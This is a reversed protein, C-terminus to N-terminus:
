LEGRRSASPRFNCASSRMMAPEPRDIEKKIGERLHVTEGSTGDKPSADPTM